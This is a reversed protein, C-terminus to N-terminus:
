RNVSNKPLNRFIPNMAFFVVFGIAATYIVSPLTFNFLVFLPKPDSFAYVTVWKTFFYAFSAVFNLVAAAAINRNFLRSMVIGAAFGLVTLAVTSYTFTASYSDTIAGSFLGIVAGAYEGFYFGCYLVMPLILVASAHGLQLTMIGTSQLLLVFVCVMTYIALSLFYKIRYATM